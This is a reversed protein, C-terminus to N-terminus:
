HTDTDTWDRKLVLGLKLACPVLGFTEMVVLANLIFIVDIRNTTADADITDSFPHQALAM